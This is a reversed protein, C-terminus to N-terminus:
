DFEYVLPISNPINLVAIDKDPINDFHKIISRLTNKHTVVL